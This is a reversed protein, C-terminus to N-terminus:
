LGKSYFLKSNYIYALCDGSYFFYRPNKKSGYKEKLSDLKFEDYFIEIRITSNSENIIENSCSYDM